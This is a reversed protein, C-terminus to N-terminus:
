KKNPKSDNKDIKSKPTQDDFWDKSLDDWSPNTTKILAEKKKRRWRKIQKERAIGEYVDNYEEFYVLKHCSYKQTFGKNFNTKHEYVRRELDNTFGVYLTGSLSAMLYVYFSYERPM